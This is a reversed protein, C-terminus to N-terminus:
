LRNFFSIVAPMFSLKSRNTKFKPLRCRHASLLLMFEVFLPHQSDRLPNRRVYSEHRIRTFLHTLNMGVIRSSQKVINGLRNKSKLNLNGFRCIMSFTLISAMFSRYFLKRPFIAYMNHEFSLKSDLFAGLYKYRDVTEVLEGDILTQMPPLSSEQLDIVMGKTKRVNLQELYSRDRWGFFEEVVPGQSVEEDQLLSVIDAFKSDHGSDHNSQCDNTYLVFLLHSLACGQPSDTSSLSM